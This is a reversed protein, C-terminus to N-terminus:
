CDSLKLVRSGFYVVFCDEGIPVESCANANKSNVPCGVAIM